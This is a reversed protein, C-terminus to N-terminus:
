GRRGERAACFHGRAETMMRGIGSHSIWSGRIGSGDLQRVFLTLHGADIPSPGRANSQSGVRMVVSTVEGSANTTVYVGVGPDAPDTAMLDGMRTAGVEEIQADLTGVAPQAQSAAGSGSLLVLSSDQAHLVLHGSVTHGSAPGSTAVMTLGYSGPLSGLDLDQAAAVFPACSMAM